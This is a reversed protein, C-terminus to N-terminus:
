NPYRTSYTAAAEERSPHHHSAALFDPKDRFKEPLSAELAGPDETLNEFLHELLRSVYGYTPPGKSKRVSYEGKKAKPFTVILKLNGEEDVADGRDGNENYHLAALFLLKQVDKRLFKNDLVRSLAGFETSEPAFWDKDRAEDLLPAHECAPFLDGHDHHKNVLHNLLSDWKALMMQGDGDPTSAAVWHLHNIISKRWDGVQEMGAKNALSVLKKTLGKAVHWIDFYHKVDPMQERIFKTNQSHRDTVIAEVGHGAQRLFHIMRRLGENECRASNGVENSQVVQVDIVKNIRCEMTNFGGYKACHGPSDSRGDGALILEGDMTSLRELLGVQATQWVTVITPQLYMRQHKYFTTRSNRAVNMTDLLHFAKSLLSGSFLIAASLNINGSPMQGIFPQSNWQSSHSCDPCKFDVKILSGLETVVTRGESHCCPCNRFLQLLCSRFVIYKREQYPPVHPDTVSPASETSTSMVDGKPYADPDPDFDSDDTDQAGSESSSTQDDDYTPIPSSCTLPRAYEFDRSADCQCPLDSQVGVSRMLPRTLTGTSLM